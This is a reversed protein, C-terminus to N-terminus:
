PSLEKGRGWRFEVEARVEGQGKGVAAGTLPGEGPAYVIEVQHRITTTVTGWQRNASLRQRVSEDFDREEQALNYKLGDRLEGVTGSYEVITVPRAESEGEVQFYRVVTMDVEADDPLDTGIGLTVSMAGSPRFTAEFQDIPLSGGGCAVSLLVVSVYLPTRKMWELRHKLM